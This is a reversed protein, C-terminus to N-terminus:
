NRVEVSSVSNGESLWDPGQNFAGPHIRYNSRGGGSPGHTIETNASDRSQDQESLENLYRFLSLLSKPPVKYLTDLTYTDDINESIYSGFSNGNIVLNSDSFQQYGINFYQAWITDTWQTTPFDIDMRINGIVVKKNEIPNTTSGRSDALGISLRKFKGARDILKLVPSTNGQCNQVQSYTCDGLPNLGFNNPFILNVTWWGIGEDYYSQDDELNLNLAYDPIFESWTAGFNCCGGFPLKASDNGYWCPSEAISERLAYRTSKTYGDPVGEPMLPILYYQMNNDLEGLNTDGENVAVYLYEPLTDLNDRRFTISILPVGGETSFCPKFNCDEPLSWREQFDQLSATEPRAFSWPGDQCNVGAGGGDIMANYDCSNPTPLNGSFYPNYAEADTNFFNESYADGKSILLPLLNTSDVIYKGTGDERLPLSSKKAFELSSTPAGPYYDIDVHTAYKASLEYVTWDNKPFTYETSSTFSLLTSTETVLPTLLSTPSLIPKDPSLRYNNEDIASVWNIYDIGTVDQYGLANQLKYSHITTEGNFEESVINGGPGVVDLFTEIVANVDKYFNFSNFPTKVLITVPLSEHFVKKDSITIKEGIRLLTGNQKAFLIDVDNISLGEEDLLEDVKDQIVLVNKITSSVSFPIASRLNMTKDVVSIGNLCWFNEEVISNTPILEIVYKQDYRHVQQKYQYYSLPVKIFRNLTNFKLVDVEFDSLLLNYLCKRRTVNIACESGQVNELTGEEHTITHSLEDRVYSSPNDSSTISSFYIMEWKGQPTYVWSVKNGEADQELETRILVNYSRGGTNLNDDNLFISSVSIEFDDEPTFYNGGDGYNFTYRLRPINQKTSLCVINNDLLASNKNLVGQDEAFNYISIKNQTSEIVDVLEVGSLLDAVKEETRSKIWFDTSMSLKSTSASFILFENDDDTDTNKLNVTNNGYASGDENLKANWFIPGYIHSVLSSGGTELEELTSDSISPKGQKVYNNLYLYNLTKNKENPVHKYFDLGLESFEKEFNFDYENWLENKLSGAHDMWSDNITLNSNLLIELEAQKGIKHDVLDYFFKSVEEFSDRFRYNQCGEYPELGRTPFASSVAVGYITALSDKDQYDKYIEPLNNNDDISQFRAASPIYGLSLYETDSGADSLNMFTPANFGTRNFWNGKSFLKERNRRRVVGRPSVEQYPGSTNYVSSSDVFADDDSTRGFELVERGFVPLNEHNNQTKTTAFNYSPLRHKGLFGLEDARMNLSSAQYSGLAGSLNIMDLFKFNVRPCITTVSRFNDVASLNTHVRGIAKAPIFDKVAEMSAFFDETTFSTQIFIEDLFGVSCLTLDFHSSKGSWYGIYDFKSQEFNEILNQYNPPLQLSETLFFFGNNYFKPDTDGSVTNSLIFDEFSECYTSPVGLCLLKGKLFEVLEFTVDCDKYFNEYEWPPVNFDRNRYNFVFNDDQPRFPYGRINFLNPFEHVAELLIQDVVFRISRDLDTADRWSGAFENAKETTWVDLSSLQTSETKLLYYILNPIYSEFFESYAESFDFNSAPLISKLLDVLGAKTGKKQLIARSDRLQRRWSDTNSTYFKWGVIDALYPLYEEPCEDISLLTELSLIENDLDSYIFGLARQFKYLPGNDLYIDPSLGGEFYAVLASKVFEDDKERYNDQFLIDTWTNLKDLSQTGSAYTGVGSLFEASLLSPFTNRFSTLYQNEWIYENLIGLADNLQLTESKSIKTAFLLVVKDYLDGCLLYYFLGLSGHLYIHTNENSNALAGDTSTYLDSAVSGTSQKLLPFLTGSFFEYLDSSTTYDGLYYGLPELIELSLKNPSIETLKNQKVFHKVMGSPYLNTSDWGALSTVIVDASVTPNISQFNEIIEIQGKVVKTTIDVTKLESLAEDESRYIEPTIKQFVDVAKRKYPRSM